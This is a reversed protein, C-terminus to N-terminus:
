LDAKFPIQMPTHLLVPSPPVWFSWHIDCKMATFSVDLEGSFFLSAM